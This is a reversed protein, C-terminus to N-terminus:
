KQENGSGARGRDGRRDLRMGAGLTDQYQGLSNEQGRGLSAQQEPQCSHHIESSNEVTAKCPASVGQVLVPTIKPVKSLASIRM